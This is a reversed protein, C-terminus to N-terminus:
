TWRELDEVTDIDIPQGPCPVLTVTGSGGDLLRRAGADGESPLLPWVSAALRVPHGMRGEYSAAAIPTADAAAVARWADPALAPQDGLGVVVADHGADAAHAVAAQLSTAQGERWRDNRVVTIGAPLEPPEVAGVVVVTEDLAADVANSLAWSVLARGRFPALLKHTPGLYRTGGGAALVVAAVTM